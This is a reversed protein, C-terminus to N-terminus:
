IRQWLFYPSQVHLSSKLTMEFQVQEQIIVVLAVYVNNVKATTESCKLNVM